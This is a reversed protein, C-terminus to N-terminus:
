NRFVVLNIQRNEFRRGRVLFDVVLVFYIIFWGKLGCNSRIM